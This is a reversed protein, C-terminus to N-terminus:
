FRNQEYSAGASFQGSIEYQSIISSVDMMVPADAYRIRVINLLLQKKWSDAYANIYDTRDKNLTAPGVSKCSTIFLLPILLFFWSRRNKLIIFQVSWESYTQM